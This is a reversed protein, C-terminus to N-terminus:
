ELGFMKNIERKLDILNSEMVLRIGIYDSWKSEDYYNRRWVTSENKDHGLSGGKVVFNSIDGYLVYANVSGIPRMSTYRDLCWQGVHGTMDYLGLENPLKQKVEKLAEYKGDYNYCWGVEEINNSGSYKTGKSLLGGRAAFEWESETPLRFKRGTLKSLQEAFRIADDRRVNVVPYNDGRKLHFSDYGMVAQWQKETLLTEGIYYDHTLAAEFYESQRKGKEEPDGMYFFGPLVHIMKFKVNNVIVIENNHLHARKNNNSQKIFTIENGCDPCFKSDAPLNVSGCHPCKNDNAVIPTACFPCFKFGDQIEKNCNPCKM